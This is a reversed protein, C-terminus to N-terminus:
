TQPDNSRQNRRHILFWVFMVMLLTVFFGAFLKAVFFEAYSNALIDAM